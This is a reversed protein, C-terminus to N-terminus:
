DEELSIINYRITGDDYTKIELIGIVTQGVKDKYNYYTDYDNITYEINNYEVRIIHQAPHTIYTTTKNVRIPQMWMARHYKDTIIVEVPEYEVSIYKTCGTLISCILIMLLFIAYIKKM